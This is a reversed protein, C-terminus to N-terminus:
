KSYSFDKRYRLFGLIGLSDIFKWNNQKNKYLPYPSPQALANRRVERKLTRGLNMPPFFSHPNSQNIQLPFAKWVCKIELMTNTVYVLGFRRDTDSDRHM